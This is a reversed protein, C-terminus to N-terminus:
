QKGERMLVERSCGASRVRGRWQVSAACAMMLAGVGKPDNEVRPEGCYYACSGDRCTAGGLGACACIDRLRLANEEGTLKHRCVASLVAEGITGYEEPLVGMAAGRLMTYAIMANGSAETYNEPADPRDIVQYFMGEKGLYPLLATVAEHLMAILAQALTQQRDPLLAIVDVLAMLLWGEGRLWHSASVGTDADAWAQVGAEDIGHRYLGTQPVRLKDYVFSFAKRIEERLAPADQPSWLAYEALFPLLMYLGDLWVQQPYMQKHWFLGSKTRPHAQLQAYQWQLARGYKSQPEAADAFFLAKSCNFSDLCHNETLYSPLSGDEAVRRSLYSMVFAAYTEDGTAEYLRRCGTLVCGDEYNWYSKFPRYDALYSHFFYESM